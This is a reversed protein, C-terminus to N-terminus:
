RCPLDDRSVVRFEISAVRSLNLFSEILDDAVVVEIWHKQIDNQVYFTIVLGHEDEDFFVENEAIARYLRPRNQYKQAFEGKWLNLYKIRNKSKIDM